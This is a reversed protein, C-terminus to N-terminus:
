KGSTSVNPTLANKASAPLTDAHALLLSVQWLQDDTRTSHFGPMGTLRIGNAVKWFTEGPPDDTVGKGHFLQPPHPFMGKAIATEKAGPLGHCVACDTQYIVAGAVLNTETAELPVTKPMEKEIRAHLAMRALRKEFPMPAASTAVPAFGGAFYFYVGVVLVLVTLIVGAILGVLLRNKM